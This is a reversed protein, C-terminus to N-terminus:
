GSGAVVAPASEDVSSATPWRVRTNRTKDKDADSARSSRGKVSKSASDMTIDLDVDSKDLSLDDDDEEDDTDDDVNLIPKPDNRAHLTKISREGDLTYLSEPDTYKKVNKMGDVMHKGFENRYWTAKEMEAMREEDALQEPTTITNTTADWVCENIKSVLTPCCAEKLLSKIFPEDLGAKLLSHYLYAPFQRNMMLIMAEAEATNPVVIEMIGMSGRQHIEAILSTGDSMKLYKLLLQCLSLTGKVRQTIANVLPATADLHVIGRIDECLMSCHFNVHRQAFKVYRKLEGTPTANDAVESFHVQRGWMESIANTSKAKRVLKILAPAHRTEVEIHWARRAMQAQQSLHNFSETVQGPIWPIQKRLSMQLLPSAAGGTDLTSVSNLITKLEEMLTLPHGENWLFYIAIPSCTDFFGLSKVALCTGGLMSWDVSITTIIKNPPIDSSIAFTFYLTPPRTDKKGQHLAGDVLQVVVIRSRM